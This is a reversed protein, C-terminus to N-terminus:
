SDKFPETECPRFPFTLRNRLDRPRSRENTTKGFANEKFATELMLVTEVANKRLPYCFKVSAQQESLAAM